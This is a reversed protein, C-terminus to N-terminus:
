AGGGKKVKPTFGIEGPECELVRCLEVLNRGIPIRMGRRWYYVALWTVGLANAVAQSTIKLKRMRVDLKWNGGRGTIRIRRAETELGDVLGADTKAKITISKM